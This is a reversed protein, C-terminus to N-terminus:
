SQERERARRQRHLKIITVTQFCFTGGVVVQLVFWAARFWAPSFNWVVASLLLTSMIVEAAAYTIMMRGLHTRWWPNTLSYTVIMMVGSLTIFSGFILYLVEFTHM